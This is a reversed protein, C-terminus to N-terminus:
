RQRLALLRWIRQFTETAFPGLRAKEWIIRAFLGV